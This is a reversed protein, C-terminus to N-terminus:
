AFYGGVAKVIEGAENLYFGSDILKSDDGFVALNGKKTQGEVAGNPISAPDLVWQMSNTFPNFMVKYTPNM